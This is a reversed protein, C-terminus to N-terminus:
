WWARGRSTIILRLFDDRAQPGALLNHGVGQHELGRDLLSPRFKFISIRFDGQTAHKTIRIKLDETM